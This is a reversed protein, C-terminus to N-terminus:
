TKFLEALPSHLNTSEARAKFKTIEEIASKINQDNKKFVKKHGGLWQYKKAYFIVSFSADSPLSMLFLKLAKKTTKIKIEEDQAM